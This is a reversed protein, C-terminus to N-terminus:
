SPTVKKKTKKKSAKKSSSQNVPKKKYSRLVNLEAELVSSDLRLAQMEEHMKRIRMGNAHEAEFDPDEEVQDKVENYKPIKKLDEISEVFWSRELGESDIYFFKKM